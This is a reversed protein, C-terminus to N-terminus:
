QCVKKCRYLPFYNGFTCGICYPNTGVLINYSQQDIIKRGTYFTTDEDTPFFDKKYHYLSDNNERGGGLLYYSYGKKRAWNLVEIKLFDNPRTNFYNIDTGGLFSNVTTDSLLLLEASIAIEDKYIIVIACSSPNKDILNVFYDLKYFYLPSAKKREMTATYITHFQRIVELTINNHYIVSKLGCKVSKRYNNRVKPKFNEWQVEEPLIKGRVNSLTPNIEGSYDIWNKQMNFRIFESVVNNKKYWKDVKKWFQETWKMEANERFIPGSYGYPSSVDYYGTEKGMFVVKRYYFPMLIIPSGDKMLVFYMLEEHEEKGFSLLEINYLPNKPFLKLFNKYQDIDKESLLPYAELVFDKIVTEFLIIAM